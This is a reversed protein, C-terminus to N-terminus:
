ALRILANTDDATPLQVKFKGNTSTINGGFSLVAVAKNSNSANYILAGAATITSPDWEPDDFDIWATGGTRGTTFGTLAVGGADYGDGTVENTAAYATTAAGLSASSTYLAMMYTDGSTHEGQLLEEKYSNCIASEIAM